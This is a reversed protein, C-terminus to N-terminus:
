NDVVSFNKLSLEQVFPSLMNSALLDQNGILNVPVKQQSQNNLRFLRLSFFYRLLVPSCLKFNLKLPLTLSKIKKRLKLTFFYFSWPFYLDIGCFLREPFRWTVSVITVVFNRPKYLAILKECFSLKQLLFTIKYTIM